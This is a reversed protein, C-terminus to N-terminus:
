RSQEVVHELNEFDQVLHWAIGLGPVKTLGEKDQKMM